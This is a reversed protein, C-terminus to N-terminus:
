FCSECRNFINICESKCLAAGKSCYLECEKEHKVVDPDDPGLIEKLKDLDVCQDCQLFNSFITFDFYKKKFISWKSTFM